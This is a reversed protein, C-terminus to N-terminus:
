RARMNGHIRANTIEITLVISIGIKVMTITFRQWKMDGVKSSKPVAM